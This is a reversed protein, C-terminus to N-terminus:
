VMDLKGGTAVSSRVNSITPNTGVDSMSSKMRVENARAIRLEAAATASILGVNAQIGLAGEM